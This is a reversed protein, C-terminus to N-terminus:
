FALRGLGIALAVEVRLARPGLSLPSFGCRVLCNEEFESWGAEPGVAIVFPGSSKALNAGETRTSFVLKTGPVISLEDEVTAKFREAIRVKPLEYEWSQELGLILEENIEEPLLATANFYSREAKEARIFMLDVVGFSAAIHLVKKVTQPRSIGVVLHFSNRVLQERLEIKSFVLQNSNLSELVGVARSRGELGLAYSNGVSLKHRGCLARLYDGGIVVRDDHVFRKPIFVSNM